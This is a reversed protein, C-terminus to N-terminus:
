LDDTYLKGTTGVFGIRGFFVLYWFSSFTSQNLICYRFEFTQEGIVRGPLQPLHQIFGTAALDAQHHELYQSFSMARVDEAVPLPSKTVEYYLGRFIRNVTRNLRETDLSMALSNALHRGDPSYIKVAKLSDFVPKWM